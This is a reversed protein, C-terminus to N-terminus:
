EEPCTQAIWCTVNARYGEPDTEAAEAHDAGPVLWLRKPESAAAYVAQAHTPQIYTDAAGHIVFFPSTVEAAAAANDWEDVLLWGDPMDLGSGDNMLQQGQAFMDETILVKPPRVGAVRTAVSGGLSLGLFPIAEVPVGTHGEVYDVAGLGDALVGDWTPSGESKGYGRYDFIFVEYGMSWYDGVQGIYEDINAANGHFYLLLEAGPEEQHAWVGSLTLGDETPFSVEEFSATPVVDSALAYETVPVGNFFFSDLSMCGTLLLLTM